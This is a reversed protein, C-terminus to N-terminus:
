AERYGAIFHSATVWLTVMFGPLYVEQRLPDLSSTDDFAPHPLSVAPAKWICERLVLFVRARDGQGWLLQVWVGRGNGQPFYPPQPLILWKRKM